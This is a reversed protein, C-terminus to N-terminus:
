QGDLGVEKKVEPNKSNEGEPVSEAPNKCLQKKRMTSIEAVLLVKKSLYKKVVRDRNFPMRQAGPPGTM